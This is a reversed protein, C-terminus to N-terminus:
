SQSMRLPSFERPMKTDLTRFCEILLEASVDKQGPDHALAGYGHDFQLMRVDELGAGRLLDALRYAIDIDMGFTATSWKQMEAQRQLQPQSDPHHPTARPIFEIEVLHLAGGPRLLDVYNRVAATWDATKLGWVLLRQHVM